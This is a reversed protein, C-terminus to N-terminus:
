KCGSREGRGSFEDDVHAKCLLHLQPASQFAERLSIWMNEAKEQKRSFFMYIRTFTENESVACTIGTTTLIHRTCHCSQRDIVTVKKSRKEINRVKFIRQANQDDTFVTILPEKTIMAKTIQLLVIWIWSFQRIPAIRRTVHKSSDPGVYLVMSMLQGSALSDKFSDELAVVNRCVFFM